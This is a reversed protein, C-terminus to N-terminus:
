IIGLWRIKSSALERSHGYAKLTNIGGTRLLHYRSLEHHVGRGQCERLFTGWVKCAGGDADRWLRLANEVLGDGFHNEVEFGGCDRRRCEDVNAFVLDFTRRGGKGWM